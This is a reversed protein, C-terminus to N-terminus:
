PPPVPLTQLFPSDPELRAFIAIDLENDRVSFALIRATLGQDELRRLSFEQSAGEALSLM